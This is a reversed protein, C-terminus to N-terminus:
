SAEVPPQYRAGVAGSGRLTAIEAASCGIEALLSDTHEGLGPVPGMPPEFGDIVAPPLVAVIRGGPTDITRLRHREVLQPHNIVESPKNYRSNGIGVEDAVKQIHELDHAACWSGIADDLEARHECRGPNTLFRADEALDPRGLMDRSLRQWERDNTTGLVVTQDDATRYAGYPAVAPSSMGLPVLDVGSYRAYNLHYGMMEAMMDFLSVAINTGSGPGNRLRGCLTALISLAAYLGTTVDAMPPGPKAPSDATGTVACVGSEAQVLLDYARKHSLPGGAGFGDIEVAILDPHRASIDQPALGLRATAGPALNSVLVDARDLLRHLLEVGADSKLDLTVSEKGRNCWVFHAAQGQVVDDYYRAFDGGSPNEVKIVRAGFDALARTCMPASVAQELAVVTIGALPGASPDLM